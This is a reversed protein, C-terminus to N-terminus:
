PVNRIQVEQNISHIESANSDDQLQLEYTVLANRRLSSPLYNFVLSNAVVGKGILLRNPVTSPLSAILNNIDGVFGYNRYYFIHDAVQCFANPQDVVYLRKQPSNKEFRFVSGGNFTFTIEDALVTASVTQTSIYGQTGSLTYLENIDSVVPYIALRGDSQLLSDLNIATVTSAPSSFPANIYTSAGVIPIFEICSQTANVRVSGPLAERLVRTIKENIVTASAALESRRVTDVYGQASFSIFQISGISLVSLIVMVIIIEILTFGSSRHRLFEGNKTPKNRNVQHQIILPM